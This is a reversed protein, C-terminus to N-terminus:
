AKACVFGKQQRWAKTVSLCDTVEALSHPLNVARKHPIFFLREFCSICDKIETVIFIPQGV